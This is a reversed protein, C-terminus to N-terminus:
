LGSEGQLTKGCRSSVEKEQCDDSDLLVNIDACPLGSCNKLEGTLQNQESCQKEYIKEEKKEKPLPAATEQGSDEMKWGDGGHQAPICSPQKGQSSVELLLTNLQPKYVGDKHKVQEVQNNTGKRCLMHLISGSEECLPSLTFQPPCYEGYQGNTFFLW